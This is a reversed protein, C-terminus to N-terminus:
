EVATGVPAVEIWTMGANLKIEAGSTDYFRTINAGSTRSWTGTTKVGDIYFIASGSGTTRIKTAQENYRTKGYTFDSYMVIVNKAKFQEGSVRDKQPVGLISRLFCNDKRDYAWTVPFNANFKVNFVLSEPREEEKNDDKFLYAAINSDAVSFGKSKAAAILKETKTYVNHPAYRKTDRWFFSGFYFQNIDYFGKTDEILDLADINGGVHAFLAKYANAWDVFYTRASRVPGIESVDNEQFIALFRTIGGEAFTEYILSADNLGSQPRADPHNEIVVAMPRRETREKEVMRGSLPARFKEEEKPKLTIEGSPTFTGATLSDFVFFGGILLTAAVLSISWKHKKIFGWLKVFGDKIKQM